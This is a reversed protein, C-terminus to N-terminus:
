WWYRYAFPCTLKAAQRAVGWMLIARVELRTSPRDVVRSSRLSSAQLVEQRLWRTHLHNLHVTAKQIRRRRNGTTPVRALGTGRLIPSPHKPTQSLRRRLPRISLSRSSHRRRLPQFILPVPLSPLNLAVLSPRPSSPPSLHLASPRPARPLRKPPRTRRPLQTTTTRRSPTRQLVRARRPQHTSLTHKTRCSTTTLDSGIAVLRSTQHSGSKRGQPDAKNDILLSVIAPISARTQSIYLILLLKSQIFLRNPRNDFSCHSKPPFSAFRPAPSRLLPPSSPHASLCVV